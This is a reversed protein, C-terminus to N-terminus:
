ISIQRLGFRINFPFRPHPFSNALSVMNGVYNNLGKVDSQRHLCDLTFHFDQAHVIIHIFGEGSKIRIFTTKKFQRLMQGSEKSKEQM